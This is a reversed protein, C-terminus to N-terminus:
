RLRHLDRMVGQMQFRAESQNTDRRAEYVTSTSADQTEGIFLSEGLSVGGFALMSFPAGEAEEASVQDGLHIRWLKFVPNFWLDYGSTDAGPALREPYFMKAFGVGGGVYWLSTVADRGGTLSPIEVHFGPDFSTEGPLVRLVCTTPPTEMRQMAYVQALYSRGDALVYVAGDETVAPEGAGVCRDDHAVAVVEDREADIQVLSVRHLIEGADFNVHRLPVYVRNGAGTVSWLEIDYGDMQLDSLDIQGEIEMTSPNWVLVLYQGEAFLYAKTDSLFVHGAPISTLGYSLFSVRGSPILEGADNPVYKEITPEESLGIYVAGGHAWHRSNGAFEIAAGNDIDADLTRLTQILLTRGEPNQVISGVSYLETAKGLDAEGGADTCGLMAAAAAGIVGILDPSRAFPALLARIGHSRM